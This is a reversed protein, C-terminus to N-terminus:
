CRMDGSGDPKLYRLGALEPRVFFRQFQQRLLLLRLYPALDFSDASFIMTYVPLRRVSQTYRIRSKRWEQNFVELKEVAFLTPGVFIENLVNQLM